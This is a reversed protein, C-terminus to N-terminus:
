WLGIIISKPKCFSVVEMGVQLGLDDFLEISMTSCLTNVGKLQMVVECNFNDRNIRIIKGVFRNMDSKYLTLDKSITLANAKFLAYLETGVDIGLLELSDNTIVAMLEEGEGLELFLESEVAGKQIKVVKARLQNRASIKVDFSKLLHIHGNKESIRKSLTELFQNHEEQLIKYTEILEKAYTTLHTGGGGKGGKSSEVLPFDSLNNMADIADWAAKYSMKMTKAAKTISGSQSINILLEIRGQGLFNHQSKNLWLRGSISNQM